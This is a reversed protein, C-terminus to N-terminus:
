KALSIEGSTNRKREKKKKKHSIVRFSRRVSRARMSVNQSFDRLSQRTTASRMLVDNDESSCKRPMNSSNGIEQLSKLTHSLISSSLSSFLDDIGTNLKASTEM